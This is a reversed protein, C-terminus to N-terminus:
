RTVIKRGSNEKCLGGLTRGAKVINAKADGFLMKTHLSGSIKRRTRHSVVIAQVARDTDRRISSWPPDLHPQIAAHNNKQRWYNSLKQTMRPDACAVVLADIAHHRHDARTKAGDDSLISNLGWLRRLQATVRGTVVQVTVPADVGLDPWLRKLFAVAQRSAFRTDNLQRSAFDQPLEEERCFRKAKAAKMKRDRVLQWVRNKMDMWEPDSGFAEFPTLNSKRHNVEKLCLTKNAFSDDFSRWQPWIHEVDFENRL